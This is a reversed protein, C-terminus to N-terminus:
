KTRWRHKMFAFSSNLGAYGVQQSGRNGWQNHLGRSQGHSNEGEEHHSNFSSLKAFLETVKELIQQQNTLLSNVNQELQEVRQDMGLSQNWKRVYLVPDKGKNIILPYVLTPM